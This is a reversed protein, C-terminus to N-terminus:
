ARIFIFFKSQYREIPSTKREPLKLVANFQYWIDPLISGVHMQLPASFSFGPTKEGPKAYV